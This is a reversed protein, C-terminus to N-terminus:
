RHRLQQITHYVQYMNKIDKLKFDNLHLSATRFLKDLIGESYSIDTINNILIGQHNHTNIIHDSYVLYATKKIQLYLSILEIIILLLIAAIILYTITKSIAINLLDLNLTVGYYLVAGLLILVFFRLIIRKKAVPKITIPM